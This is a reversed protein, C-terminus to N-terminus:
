AAQATAVKTPPDCVSALTQAIEMDTVQRAVKTAREREGERAIDDLSIIGALRTDADVVPLRRIKNQRMTQEAMGLDDGSKCSFVRKSMANSVQADKLSIGQIYAAMCVDRDTIMGVVRLDQDVVPVCGCNNDWMIQAATNLSDLAGCSKVDSRMLNKVKM